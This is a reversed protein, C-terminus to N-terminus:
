ATRHRERLRPVVAANGLPEAFKSGSSGDCAVSHAGEDEAPLWGEANRRANLPDDIALRRGAARRRRDWVRRCRPRASQSDRTEQVSSAADPAYGDPGNWIRLRFPRGGSRCSRPQFSVTAISSPSSTSDDNLPAPVLSPVQEMTVIELMLVVAHHRADIDASARARTHPLRM